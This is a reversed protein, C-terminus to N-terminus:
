EHGAEEPPVFFDGLAGILAHHQRESLRGSAMMEDAMTADKLFASFPDTDGSSRLWLDIPGSKFNLVESLPSDDSWIFLRPAKGDAAPLLLAATRGWGAKRAVLLHPRSASLWTELPTVGAPRGDIAM